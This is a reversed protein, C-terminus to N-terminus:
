GERTRELSKNPLESSRKSIHDLEAVHAPVLIESVVSCHDFSL